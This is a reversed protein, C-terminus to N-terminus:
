KTIEDVENEDNLAKQRLSSATSFKKIVPGLRTSAASEIETYHNLAFVLVTAILLFVFTRRVRGFFQRLREARIKRRAAREWENMKNATMDVASKGCKKHWGAEGSLGSM